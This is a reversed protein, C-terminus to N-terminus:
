FDINELSAASKEDDKSDFERLTMSSGSPKTLLTAFTSLKKINVWLEGTKEDWGVMNEPALSMLVDNEIKPPIREM